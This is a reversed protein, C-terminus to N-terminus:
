CTSLANLLARATAWQSRRKRPEDALFRRLRPLAKVIKALTITGRVLSRLAEQCLAMIRWPSVPRTPDDWETPACSTVQGTMQELLLAGLMKGLLYTQALDPDKARLGDLVLLSKLRKILMEVQWRIRYLGLVERASWRAAPLNTVLLVFGAALLTRADVNHKKKKAAKRARRRAEEAKEPPLPGVVLRLAFRGQPTSLWVTREQEGASTRDLERLWGILDFRSGNEQELPLNQWNTRVVLQGGAELVPGMGSAHAYGGDALRIEGPRVPFRVLTEGGHADTLEMGDLCGQGLNLSLHVRWDTGKSGPESIATADQIRLCLGPRRPLRLQRAQLIAVILTGLWRACHQLRKRLAVKSLHGLGWLECCVGLLRLSCDCVAYGLVLRLLAAASKVERRRILAGASRASAELDVSAPMFSLLDSWNELGAPPILEAIPQCSQTATSCQM